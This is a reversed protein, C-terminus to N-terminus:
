IKRKELTLANSPCKIVCLGCGYCKEKNLIIKNDENITFAKFKCNSICNKCNICLKINQKVIYESKKILDYHDYKLLAVLDHCCCSCCSCIAHYMGDRLHLLMHILGIETTEEIIKLANSVSIKKGLGNNIADDAIQPDIILCVDLPANCPNNSLKRCECQVLAIISSQELIKKTKYPPSVIHSFELAKKPPLPISPDIDGKMLKQIREEIKKIIWDHHHSEKKEIYEYGM